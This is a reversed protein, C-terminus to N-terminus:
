SFGRANEALPARRSGITWCVDPPAHVGSSNKWDSRVRAGAELCSRANGRCSRGRTQWLRVRSICLACPIGPVEARVWLRAHLLLFCVLTTAVPVAKSGANGARTTKVTEETSEGTVPSEQWRRLGRHSFCRRRSSMLTPIDPGCPKATRACRGEDLSMGRGDCGASWTSSTRLAGRISRPIARTKSKIQGVACASYKERPSQVVWIV